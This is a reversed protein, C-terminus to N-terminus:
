LPFRAATLLAARQPFSTYWIIRPLRHTHRASHRSVSSPVTCTLAAAIMARRGVNTSIVPSSQRTYSCLASMPVSEYLAMAAGSLRDEAPIPCSATISPPTCVPVITVSVIFLLWFAWSRRATNEVFSQTGAWVFYVTLCLKVTLPLQSAALKWSTDSPVDQRSEPAVSEGKMRSVSLSFIVPPRLVPVASACPRWGSPSTM